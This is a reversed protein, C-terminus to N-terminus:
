KELLAQTFDNARDALKQLADIREKGSLKKQEDTFALSVFEIKRKEESKFEAKHAEYYKRVDDDTVKIEKAFDSSRLRIVSVLLKGYAEDYNAKSESEPLSAGAAVLQKIRNLCLEDRVLQEIQEEGLGNPALFNQTFNNYKQLDFGSPGRFAEL